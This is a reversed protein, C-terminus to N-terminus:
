QNYKSAQPWIDIHHFKEVELIAFDPEWQRTAHASAQVCRAEGGLPRICMILHILTVVLVYYIHQSYSLHKKQNNLM